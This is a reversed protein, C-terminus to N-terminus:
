GAVGVAVSAIVAVATVGLTVGRGHATTRPIGRLPFLVQRGLTYAALAAVFVVGPVLAGVWLLVVVAVAALAAALASELLQTPVRRLGLRRDSSWLGWRSATPRGACCGGFFCGFRGTAMGLLLGPTSIDLLAGVPLAAILSGAVLTGVAALVFGQISMGPMTIRMGQQRHTVLYYTKAGVLGLLCAVVSVVLVPGRPLGERAALLGQVVLALVTGLAVFSPWAGLWVGPALVRTLPAFTTAGRASGVPLDVVVSTAERRVATGAERVPTATVVWEGVNVAMARATLSVRGSGPVVVPATAQVVFNDGSGVTGSVDTRRGAFRVSVAYSEGEEAADFWYTFGLGQPDVGKLQSCSFATVSVPLSISHGALRPSTRRHPPPSSPPLDSRM